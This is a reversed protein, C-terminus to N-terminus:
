IKGSWNVGWMKAPLRWGRGKAEMRFAPQFPDFEYKELRQLLFPITAAGVLAPKGADPVRGGKLALTPDSESAGDQLTKRATLLYDNARTATAFIADRFGPAQGGFRLVAEQTVNHEQLYEIPLPFHPTSEALSPKRSKAIRAPGGGGGEAQSSTATMKVGLSAPTSVIAEL